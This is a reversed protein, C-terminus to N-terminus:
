VKAKLNAKEWAEAKKMWRIKTIWWHKILTFLRKWPKIESIYISGFRGSIQKYLLIGRKSLYDRAVMFAKKWNFPEVREDLDICTGHEDYLASVEQISQFPLEGLIGRSCSIIPPAALGLMIITSAKYFLCLQDTLVNNDSIETERNEPLGKDPLFLWGEGKERAEVLEKQYAKQQNIKGNTQKIIKRHNERDREFAPIQDKNKPDKVAKDIQKLLDKSRDVVYQYQDILKQIGNTTVESTKEYNSYRYKGDPYGLDYGCLYIHDFGLFQSIIIMTNVVCGSNTIYSGVKWGKEENMMSYMMKVSKAQFSDGPDLMRFFYINNQDWLEIADTPIQIHTILKTLHKNAYNEVLYTMAPDCDLYVCYDPVINHYELISLQSTSCMIKGPWKKLYPLAEDLSPGSGIVIVPGTEKKLVSLDANRDKFIRKVPEYNQGANRTWPYEWSNKVSKNYQVPNKLKEM